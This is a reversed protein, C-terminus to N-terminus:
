EALELESKLEAPIVVDSYKEKITQEWEAALQEWGKGTTEAVTDPYLMM